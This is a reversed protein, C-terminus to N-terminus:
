APLPSAAPRAKRRTLSVTPLRLTFTSGAGPESEVTITGGMQEALRRAIALGLGAGGHRRSLNSDVQRFEEFIADQEDAAIGEGTDKVAVEVWDARTRASIRVEGSETFKVANGLLSMLIQRLRGPDGVVRQPIDPDVVLSM